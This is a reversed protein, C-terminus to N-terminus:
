LAKAGLTVKNITSTFLSLTNTLPCNAVLINERLRYYHIWSKLLFKSTIKKQPSYVSILVNTNGVKIFSTDPVNYM